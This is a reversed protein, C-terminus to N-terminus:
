ALRPGRYRGPGRRRLAMLCPLLFALEFGLGCRTSERNQWAEVCHTDPPTGDFDIGGDSDNDIGDSCEPSESVWSPRGGCGPDDLDTLLDGDDDIGNDCLLANSQESSDSASDCGPDEALDILGDGDNDVGDACDGQVNFTLLQGYGQPGGLVSNTSSDEVRLVLPWTGAATPTGSLAGAPDLVIGPPLPGQEVSWTYPPTGGWAGLTRFYSAGVNGQPISHTTS